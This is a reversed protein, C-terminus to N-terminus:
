TFNYLSTFDGRRRGDMLRKGGRYCPRGKRAHGFSFLNRLDCFRQRFKQRVHAPVQAALRPVLLGTALSLFEPTFKETGQEVTLSINRVKEGIAMGTLFLNFGFRSLTVAVHQQNLWIHRRM